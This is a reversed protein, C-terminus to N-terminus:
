FEAGVSVAFGWGAMDAGGFMDDGAALRYNFRADFIFGRYGAALGLGLPVVLQNDSSRMFSVGPSANLLAYRSWGLGILGFPEILGSGRVIPLNLRLAAEIGSRLVYDDETIGPGTIDHADGFYGVEFGVPLRTGSVLRLNWAGGLGTIRDIGDDVFNEIGGGIQVATGFGTRPRWPEPQTRVEPPTSQAGAAGPALLAFWGLLGGCLLGELRRANM